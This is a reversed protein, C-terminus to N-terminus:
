SAEREGISQAGLTVTELGSFLPTTCFVFSECIYRNAVGPSECGGRGEVCRSDFWWVVFQIIM